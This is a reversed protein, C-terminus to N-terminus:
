LMGILHLECFLSVLKYFSYLGQWGEPLTLEGLPIIYDLVCTYPLIVVQVPDTWCNESFSDLDIPEFWVM